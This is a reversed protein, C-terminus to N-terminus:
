YSVVLPHHAMPKIMFTLQVTEHGVGVIATSQSMMPIKPGAMTIATSLNVPSGTQDVWSPLWAAPTLLM